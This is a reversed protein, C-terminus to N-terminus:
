SDCNVLLMLVKLVSAVSPFKFTLRAEVSAAVVFDVLAIEPFSVIVPFKFTAYNGRRIKFNPAATRTLSFAKICWLWAFWRAM